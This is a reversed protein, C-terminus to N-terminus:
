YCTTRKIAPCTCARRGETQPIAVATGFRDKAFDDSLIQEAAPSTSRPSPCHARCIRLGHCTALWGQGLFGAGVPGSPRANSLRKRLRPLGDVVSANHRRAVHCPRSVVLARCGIEHPCHPQASVAGLSWIGVALALRRGYPQDRPGATGGVAAILYLYGDKWFFKPGKPAYMEVVWDEPYHWLEYGGEVLAGDLALGDDTLRVRSGGNFFLYRKGDEGVVHGPDIRPIELDIPESWARISATRLADGHHEAPGEPFAPIYLFYRGDHKVLDMAWVTGIYKKLIPGVPAWSVLDTSRWLVIGPTADYSSNTMYYADGDRM